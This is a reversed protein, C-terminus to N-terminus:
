PANMADREGCQREGCQLSRIVMSAFDHPTRDAVFSRAAVPEVFSRPGETVMREIGAALSDPDTTDATLGLKHDRVLRGLLGFDQTLLPLGARAAWLLVGSSGVFRQYPALVVDNALILSDLEDAPLWRDDVRLSLAPRLDGIRRVREAVQQRLAPDIRGAVTIAIRSSLAPNIRDLADLLVLLGKRETLYGFLVFSIRGTSTAAGAADPGRRSVGPYAPDPIAQVKGGHRYRRRAYDPFYPDLSLVARVDRNLLMLRYLVTKRLDRMREPLSPRYPGIGAYHVSPRFLIGSVPKGGMGLGLALPVCLLDLSLFHGAQAGTRRLYRRMVWWRAFAALTLFRRTCLWRELARLPVVRVKDRDAASLGATLHVCMDAAVLLSVVLQQPAGAAFAALHELWERPHGEADTELVLIHRIAGSSAPTAAEARARRAFSETM